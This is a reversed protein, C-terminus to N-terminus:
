FWPTLTLLAAIPLAFVLNIVKMKTAEVMNLGICMVIAFGVMSIASMMGDSMIPALAGACLTLVGQYVLVFVASFAVGIGLATAMFLAAFGDIASKILLVSPDHYLGDNFSGIITMAGACFLISGAIFGKSFGSLGLKRELIGSLSEVHDHLKILEGIITGLVLSVLLLLGGEATLHNNEGVVLMNSLTGSLGILIVTVGLAKMCADALAPRIGKKVCVGVLGGIAVAATNVITGIM